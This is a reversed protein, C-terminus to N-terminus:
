SLPLNKKRNLAKALDELARKHRNAITHRELGLKKGIRSWSKGCARWWLIKTDKASDVMPLWRLVVEEWMSVQENTPQFRPEPKDEDDRLADWLIEQWDRILILRPRAMLPGVPPLVREVQAAICIWEEVLEATWVISGVNM